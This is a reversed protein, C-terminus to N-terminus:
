GSTAEFAAKYAAAGDISEFPWSVLSVPVRHDLAAAVEGAATLPTGGCIEVLDAGQGVLEVAVAAAAAGDPAGVVTTSGGDAHTRVVRDVAPDADPAAYITVSHGPEPVPPSGFAFGAVGVPARGAVATMVQAAADLGFGRYLEILRVGAEALEASVRAAAQGDPVWVLLTRDGSHEHVVRDKVPDSGAQLFIFAEAFGGM